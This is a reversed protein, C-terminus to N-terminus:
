HLKTNPLQILIATPSKINSHHFSTIISMYLHMNIFFPFDTKLNGDLIGSWIDKYYNGNFKTRSLSLKFWLYHKRSFSVRTFNIKSDHFMSTRFEHVHGTQKYLLYVFGSSAHPSKFLKMELSSMRITTQNFNLLVKGWIIM